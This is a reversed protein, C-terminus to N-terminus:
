RNKDGSCPGNVAPTHRYGWAAEVLVRRLHANGTKTIAGRQHPQRQFARAAGPRYLGNAPPAKEFRALGGLETVVTEATIHAVGRLAQLAEIVGRLETAAQVAAEEIRQDLADTPRKGCGCCFRGLQHRHRLQDQTAAERARVLDRLADHKKDPVVGATLEGARYCRALREFDRRDTKM